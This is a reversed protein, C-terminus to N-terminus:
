NFIHSNPDAFNIVVDRKVTEGTSLHLEVTATATYYPDVHQQQFSGVYDFMLSNNYGIRWNVDVDAEVPITEKNVIIVSDVTNKLDYTSDLATIMQHVDILITSNYGKVLPYEDSTGFIPKFVITSATDNQEQPVETPTGDTELTQYDDEQVLNPQPDDSKSGCSTAFLVLSLSVGILLILSFLKRM